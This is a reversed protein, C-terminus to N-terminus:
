DEVEEGDERRVFVGEKMYVVSVAINTAHDAARELNRASNILRLWTNVRDPEARVANKLDELIARRNQNVANDSVIARRALECDETRLAKLAEDVVALAGEALLRLRPLYPTASPDRLIKRSRKALNEAIDSLGELERNVRLAAVVRRLDSAVLGYLALVRLCEAEIRVEWRDIEEEDAKVSSVLDLRGQGFVTIATRLATEAYAAMSLVERWLRDQDRVAQGGVWPTGGGSSDQGPM